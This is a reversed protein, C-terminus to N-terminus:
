KKNLICVRQFCSIYLLDKAIKRSHKSIQINNHFITGAQIDAAENLLLILQFIVDTAAEQNDNYSPMFSTFIDEIIYFGGSKIFPWLGILSNVQQKRSHGGDDVVVDYPGYKGINNLVDFNSQDGIFLNEVESVFKQACDANYELVSITAKPLFEKWLIISKGPGYNMNCGLGIELFNIESDRLPGLFQGYLFEYHHTTVKDTGSRLASEKFMGIWDIIKNRDNLEQKKKLKLTNNSNTIKNIITGSDDKKTVSYCITKTFDAYFIYLLILTSFILALFAYRNKPDM